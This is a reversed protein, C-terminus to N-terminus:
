RWSIPQPNDMVVVAGDWLNPAFFHEVFVKFAKGNM